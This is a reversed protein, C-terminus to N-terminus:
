LRWYAFGANEADTRKWIGKLDLLVARGEKRFRESLADLGLGAYAGHAVAFVAADLGRMAELPSLSVGYERMAEDPAALPDHVLVTIGYEELESKIGPVRSNRLDPVNEKFTLGFLGVHSRGVRHGQAILMKITKEAIYKGMGDNIRRGALIVEPHLGAEQAKFTLYYPDVGICHGGVLGPRFPLFNWKTEAAELVDLTDIGLRDFILALENMLAINLDRQTNEIVKAAEAVKISPARHVGARVVAGYVAATLELAQPSSASVVKIINEVRHEGDGPNIREPSYGLAFDRGCRLGSERELIPVCVEESAGPYVTSEYVVVSGARMHRGILASASRLPGLDPNRHADIPTPVAAIIFRAAGIDAPSSSFVPGSAALAAPSVEGTRDLGRRLEDIRKESLDFGTVSFRASLAVSLPLGVYGLGVVAISERRDAFDQFVPFSHPTRPM